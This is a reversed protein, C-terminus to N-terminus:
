YGVHIFPLRNSNKNNSEYTRRNKHFFHPRGLPPRAIRVPLPDFNQPRAKIDIIIVHCVTVRCDCASYM